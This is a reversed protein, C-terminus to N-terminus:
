DDDREREGVATMDIEVPLAVGNREIVISIASRSALERLREAETAIEPGIRRNEVAVLKDGSRLGLAAFQERNRGPELVFALGSEGLKPAIQVVEGLSVVPGASGAAAPPAKRPSATSAERNVLRLSERVGASNIVIQDRYVRDLRVGNWIEDGVSFRAQEGDPTKIIAAGGSDDVWTGHLALNLSTEALDPAPEVAAGGAENIDFPNFFAGARPARQAAAQPAPLRDAMPLPAFLALAILLAVVGIMVALALEVMSAARALIARDGVIRLIEKAVGNALM